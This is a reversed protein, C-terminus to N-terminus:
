KSVDEKKNLFKVWFECNAYKNLGRLKISKLSKECPKGKHSVIFMALTGKERLRREMEKLLESGVTEYGEKILFRLYSLQVDYNAICTGVVEGKEEAILFLDPHEKLKREYVWKRDFPTLFNLSRWFDRVKQWDEIKFDRVKVKM